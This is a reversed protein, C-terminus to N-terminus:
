PNPDDLTGLDPTRPAHPRRTALWREILARPWVPSGGPRAIPKPLQGRAVYSRVTGPTVGLLDAVGDVGVLNHPHLEPADMAVPQPAREDWAAAPVLIDARRGIDAAHDFVWALPHEPHRSAWARPVIRVPRSDVTAAPPDFLDALTYDCADPIATGDRADRWVAQDDRVYAGDGDIATRTSRRQAETLERSATPM